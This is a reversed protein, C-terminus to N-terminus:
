VGYFGYPGKKNYCDQSGRAPPAPLGLGGKVPGGMGGVFGEPTKVGSSKSWATNCGGQFGEMRKDVASKMSSDSPQGIWDTTPYTPAFMRELGPTWKTYDSRDSRTKTTPEYFPDLGAATELAAPPVNITAEGVSSVPGSSAPADPLDDEYEIKEKMNRTRVIEFVNPQVEEVEPIKGKPKYIQNILERADEVDYKTLEQTAKPAYAALIKKEEQEMAATDPPTLNGAGIAQYPKNLDPSSPDARASFGEIYKAQESQFRSASPPLNAWDLPWRRTMQNIQTQKLERDGENKFVIDLEYQDISNIPTTDYPYWNADSTDLVVKFGEKTQVGGVRTTPSKLLLSLTVAVVLVLLLAFATYKSTAWEPIKM